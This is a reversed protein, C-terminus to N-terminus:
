KNMPYPHEGDVEYSIAFPKNTIFLLTVDNEATAGNEMCGGEPFWVFSGPGYEGKHTHLIGDLIYMGHAHPHTHWTNVFGASYRILFVDMGSDPDSLLVKLPIRANIQPVELIEWPMRSSDAVTLEIQNTPESNM